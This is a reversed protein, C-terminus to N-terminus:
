CVDTRICLMNLVYYNVVSLVAGMYFVSNDGTKIEFITTIEAKLFSTKGTNYKDYQRKDKRFSYRLATM